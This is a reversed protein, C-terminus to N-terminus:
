IKSTDLKDFKTLSSKITKLILKLGGSVESEAYLVLEPDHVSKRIIFWGKNHKENFNVRVGEINDKVLLMNKSSIVRNKLHSLIKNAYESINEDLIPLRISVKEKASELSRISDSLTKGQEKLKSMEIIVKAALYAGDDIFDNEKFAAHGSTEIALPCNVNEHNIKKAMDIVNNYGRKYRFQSGGKRLIFSKLHDSTVSDTVIISNPNDRLTIVSTLAILKEGSILIGGKDVIAVRDVDTDFIIGLDANHSKTLNVISELAAPDEPNPVHNPFNGDPELFASGSIEAGLPELIDKVFFGGAGNGADVIIKVNKLPLDSNQSTDINSKIMNKIKDCYHEMINISRVTGKKTPEIPEIDQATQLITEIDQPSCGGKDTFFKFGNRESPHHSATIEIAASCKLTSTALYMAPTSSLACDYVNIGIGRLTNICVNKIRNASLRSDHGIAITMYKYDLDTKASLWKAFGLMIKEVVENTLQANKDSSTSIAIGRIDSGSKLNTWFENLM